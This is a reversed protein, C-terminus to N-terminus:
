LGRIRTDFRGVAREDASVVEVEVASPQSEGGDLREGPASLVACASMM